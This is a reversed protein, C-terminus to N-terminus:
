EVDVAAFYPSVPCRSDHAANGNVAPVGGDGGPYVALRFVPVGFGSCYARYPFAGSQL